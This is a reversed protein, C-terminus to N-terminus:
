VEAVKVMVVVVAVVPVILLVVTPSATAVQAGDVRVPIDALVGVARNTDPPMIVGVKGGMVVATVSTAGVAVM